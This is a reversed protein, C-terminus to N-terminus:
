AAIPLSLTTLLAHFEDMGHVVHRAGADRLAQAIDKRHDSPGVFGVPLCGAAVGSRLGVPNDDIFIAAEPAVGLRAAAFLALDPAPKARAVHEASYIHGGFRAALPSRHISRTLREIGSNSCVAMPVDFGDLVTEIGPIHRIEREFMAFLIRDAETFVATADLGQGEIWALSAASSNGSFVAAAEERDMARGAGTLAQALAECGMPESDLLVGDCDFLVAKIDTM